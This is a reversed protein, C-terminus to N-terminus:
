KNVSDGTSIFFLPSTLSPCPSTVLIADTTAACFTNAKTALHATEQVAVALGTDIEKSISIYSMINHMCFEVAHM